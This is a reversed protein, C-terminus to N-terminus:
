RAPGALRGNSDVRLAALDALISYLDGLDLPNLDFVVRQGNVTFIDDIASADPGSANSFVSGKPQGKVFNMSGKAALIGFNNADVSFQTGLATSGISGGSVIASHSDVIGKILLSGPIGGLATIHGGILGRNFEMGGLIQGLVVVNGTLPGEIFLGGAPKALLQGASSFLTGLNGQVDIAGTIGASTTTVRSILNGRSVLKGALGRARVETSTVVPTKGSTDVYLSGFDASVTSAIMTIPDIRIGTTQVVGMIGGGIRLSGFISPATLNFLAQSKLLSVDGLPGFSTISFTSSVAAKTQISGGDGWLDISQLVAKSPQRYKDLPRVYRVMAIVSGRAANSPTMVNAKLSSNPSTVGQVSLVVGKSEFKGGKKDTSVFLQVKQSTATGFPVRYTDNGEVITTGAMLMSKADNGSAEAGTEIRGYWTRHSGFAVAQISKVQIVENPLFDRIGIGALADQPLRIGAPYRFGPFFDAAPLTVATLVDGEVAINHVGAIGTADLRALNFKAVGDHAVLSLDFPIPSKTVPNAIRGTFQPNALTGSAGSMTGEYFYQLNVYHEGATASSDPLPFLVTPSALEVRREVGDETVRLAVPGFGGFVGITGIHGARVWGPMGGAVQMAALNGEVTLVGAFNQGVSLTDPGVVFSDMSGANIVATPTVTGNLVTLRHLLGSVNITGALDGPISLEDINGLNLDLSNFANVVGTSTLSGGMTLLDMIGTETVSGSISGFVILSSLTREVTVTGALDGGMILDDLSGANIVGNPTLSGGITLVDVLGTETVSGSFNGGVNLNSLEQQVHVTGALDQAITQSDINGANIVGTSTLSGGITLVNVIGTETVSGSLSGGVSLNSLAQEVTVSGALDGGIILNDIIVAIIQGNPGLSGGIVIEHTHGSATDNLVGNFNGNTRAEIHEFSTFDLVGNFDSQALLLATDNNSTGGDASVHTLPDIDLVTLTNGVASGAITSGGSGFRIDLRILGSFTIGSAGMQMGKFTTPTLVGDKRIASGSDDINLTNSGNGVLTLAGQILDLVSGSAPALSGVNFTNPASGAGSHVMTPTSALVSEISFTDAGTGLHINLADMGHYELSVGMGLGTLLTSTLIGTNSGADGSDDVNLTDAGSSQGNVVLKGAIGNVNGNTGPALSGVNVINAASGAGTNITTFASTSRVDITDNGSGMSINLTELTDYLIGNGMGLGTLQANTLLNASPTSDGSDDVTVTDAGAGGSITLLGFIANVNGGTLPALSGINFVDAGGAAHITTPGAITERIDFTDSGQGLDINLAGIGYYNIGAVRTAITATGLGTGKLLSATNVATIRSSRYEGQFTIIFVNGVKTVAVNNTYPKSTDNRPNLPDLVSGNPNLIPDLATRVDAATANYPIAVTTQTLATGGPVPVDLTLTFSGGTADMTLTQVNSDNPASTGNRVTSLLVNVSTEPSFKTLGNSKLTEAWVLAPIDQGALVGGWTITYTEYGYGSSAPNKRVHVSTSGYVKPMALEFDAEDLNFGLTVLAYGAQRTVVITKGAVTSTFNPLGTETGFGNARLVYTGGGAQVYVTQEEAVSTMGLGTLTTGTLTSNTNGTGASDNLNLTDGDNEGVITLLAGIENLLQNNSSVNIVDTGTGLEITTHGTLTRVNITDTGAGAKISTTGAHTSEITLTDNGSGLTLNFQEMNHYTIGGLFPRGAIVTDPGMGLGSLHDETLTGTDNSPSESNFVNLVDVQVDENVKINANLPAFFYRDGASPKLQVGNVTPWDTTFIVRNGSVGATEMVVGKAVGDLITFTYPNDAIRPEFGPNNPGDKNVYTAATDELYAQGAVTGASTVSGDPVRLNTEGPLMFPNNLFRDETIQIGGDIILPGRINNVRETVAAFVLVNSGEVVQDNLAKVEVTQPTFWNAPTFRVQPTIVAEGRSVSATATFSRGDKRTISLVPSPTGSVSVTYINSDIAARLAAAVTTLTDTSISTYVLPAGGDLVLRWTQGLAAVGSLMISADSWKYPSVLTGNVTATAGGGSPPIAAFEAYFRQIPAATSITLVSGSTGATAGYTNGADIVGQIKLALAVAVRHLNDTVSAGLIVDTGITVEFSRGNLIVSWKEGAAPVGMLEIKALSTAVMVQVARNEGFNASPDLSVAANYTPTVQPVVDVIVDANPQSTLVLEYSDSVPSPNIAERIQFISTADVAQSWPANITFLRFEPNYGTITATQGVGAGQIIVIQKGNLELAALNTEHRQLSINLQYKEGPQLGIQQSPIGYYNAGYIHRYTGVSIRYTGPTDFKYRLFPDTISYSGADFLVKFDLFYAATALVKGTADQLRLMPADLYYFGFYPDQGFQYNGGDIDFLGTVGGTGFEGVFTITKGPGTVGSVKNEIRVVNFGLVNLLTAMYKAGTDANIKDVLGQAVLRPTRWVTNEPTGVPPDTPVIYEYRKGNITVTWVDSPTIKTPRIVYDVASYHTDLDVVAPVGVAYDSVSTDIGRLHTVGTFKVEAGDARSITLTNGNHAVILGSSVANYLQTAVYSLQGTGGIGDVTYAIANETGPVGDINIPTALGISFDDGNSVYADSGTLTVTQTWAAPLTGGISATAAVAAPAATLTEVRVGAADNYTLVGSFNSTAKGAPTILDDFGKAIDNRDIVGNGTSDEVVYTLEEATTGDPHVLLLYWSEGASPTGSFQINAVSWHSATGTFTAPIPAVVSHSATFPAGTSSSITLTDSGNNYSISYASGPFLDEFYHGLEDRSSVVNSGNQSSGVIATLTSSGLTLTWIEGNTANGSLVIKLTAWTSTSFTSIVSPANETGPIFSVAYNALNLNVITLVAGDYTVTFGSGVFQEEFSTGLDDLTTIVTTNDNLTDTGIKASKSIGDIDLTWTEGDAPVLGSFNISRSTVARTSAGPNTLNTTMSGNANAANVSPFAVAKIGTTSDIVIAEPDSSDVHASPDIGPSSNIANKLGIAVDELDVDSDGDENQAQYSYTTTTGLRNTVQISWTDGAIVTGTLKVKVSSYLSVTGSTSQGPNPTTESVEVGVSFRGGGNKVITLVNTASHSFTYGAPAAFHLAIDDPTTDGLATTYQKTTVAGASDTLTLTWVQDHYVTGGLTIDAQLWLISEVAQPASEVNQVADQVPTGKIVVTANSSAGTQTTIALQVTFGPIGTKTITLTNSSSSYAVTFAAPINPTTDTRVTTALADGLTDISTSTATYLYDVGDLNLKWQEGVATTGGLVIQASSFQVDSGTQDHARLTNTVQGAIQVSQQLGEYSFGSPLAISLKAGTSTRTYASPLPNGSQDGSILHAIVDALTDTVSAHYVYDVGDLKLTWISDAQDGNLVFGAKEYFTRLAGTLATGSFDTVETVDPQIMDPTITFQYIDWSGDGEGLVKAYPTLSNINGGLAQDGITSDFFTYWNSSGTPDQTTVPDIVQGTNNQQEDERIPTPTFQFGDVQHGAISVQLLYDAGKPVGSLVGSQWYSYIGLWNDVSVVYTGAKTINYELYDDLWTTSGSGGVLPDSYGYPGHEERLLLGKDDYLRLKSGWFVAETVEYGKDIDFIARVTKNTAADIMSQDITFKYYDIKNDGTGIVTLHPLTDAQTINSDVNRSWKGFDLNQATAPSDHLDTENMTAVGFNGNFTSGGTYGTVQGNGIVAQSSPETINTGSGTQTVLVGPANADNDIIRVDVDAISISDGNAGALYTANPQGNPDISNIRLGWFTTGSPAAVSFVLKQYLTASATGAVTIQSPAPISYTLAFPRNVEYGSTFGTGALHRIVVTAGNSTADYVGGAKIAAAIKATFAVKPNGAAVDSVTVTVAYSSITGGANLKVTWIDGVRIPIARLDLQNFTQAGVTVAANITFTRGDIRRVLSLRSGDVLALYSGDIVNDQNADKNIENALRIALAMRPDVANAETSSTTVSFISNAGDNLVLNWVDGAVVPSGLLSFSQLVGQTGNRRVGTLVIANGSVVGTAPIWQQLRDVSSEVNTLVTGSLVQLSAGPDSTFAVRYANRATDYTVLVGSFATATRLRAQLLSAQTTTDGSIDGPVLQVQAVVGDIFYSASFLTGDKRVIVLINGDAKALYHGDVIGDHPNADLNIEDALKAALTTRTDSVGATVTYSPVVVDIGNDITVTWQQGTSVADTLQLLSAVGTIDSVNSIHLVRSAGSNTVTVRYNQRIKDALRQAVTDLSDTVNNSVGVAYEYVTGDLVLTWIQQAIPTGTLTVDATIWAKQSAAGDITINADSGADASFVRGSSITVVNGTTSASIPITKGAGASALLADVVSRMLGRSVDSASVNLFDSIPSTITQTIRAYHIGETLTDAVAYVTIAVGTQWNGANFTVVTMASATADTPQKVLAQLVGNEDPQVRVEVTVTKGAAPAKTLKLIYQDGSTTVVGPGIGTREFVLTNADINSASNVQEVVVQAADNDIVRVAISAVKIKDYAGGDGADSGQRVTHQITFNRVGEALSDEPALIFVRQAISWNTRTFLLTKVPKRKAPDSDDYLEIGKGGAIEDSEKVKGASVAVWIDEEPPRTLAIFYSLMTLGGEIMTMEPEVPTIVIGPADNDAVLTSIDPAVVGPYGASQLDIFHDILGSHSGQGASAVVTVPLGNSGTVNFIDSGRGGVVELVTNADTSVIYFTDNGELGDITIKEIGDFRTPLGAGYIADNTVLFDDGFETGLVNITDFGDGGDINVPENVVYEIYDAGQGGNINTFPRKPDNPDTRVFSRQRFTDDDAEGFLFLEANNHYITFTDKGDGGYLTTPFSIGTSLFGSGLTVPITAFYDESDLGNFPNSHDRPSLFVQGIQFTDNGADGFVTMPMSNDDFVFTDDGERGYVFMGGGLLSDDYDIREVGGNAVISMLAHPRSLFFDPGDTGYVNLQNIGDDATDSISIRASRLGALGIDYRDSDGGGRLYLREGIGRDNTQLGNRDYNVRLIDDGTGASLTTVGFTQDVNITDSGGGTDISSPGAITNAVYLADKGAGLFMSFEEFGTYTVGADVMGFGIVSGSNVTGARDATDGSDDFILRDSGLGARLELRGQINSTQGAIGGVNYVGGGNRGTVITETGANTSPIALLISGTGLWLNLHDLNQYAIDGLSLGSLRLATLTGTNASGDGGDDLNLVDNNGTGANVAIGGKIENLSGIDNGFVTTDSGVNITDDGAGTNITTIATAPATLNGGNGLLPAVNKVSPTTFSIRWPSAVTGLGTVDVIFGGLAELASKISSAGTAAANWAIPATVRGDFTLAFTGGTVSPDRYVTQVETSSYTGPIETAVVVNLLNVTMPPINTSVPGAFEVRWPSAPTGLGTVNVQFSGLAELASKIQAATANFALPATTRGSLDITFTGTTTTYITQVENAAPRGDLLTGVRAKGSADNVKLAVVNQAGPAIFTIKWPDDIRGSGIVDVIDINDLLELASKIEAAAANFLIAGTTRTGFTLTFTGSTATTYLSQVENAAAGGETVTAVSSLASTILDTDDAVLQPVDKVGSNLFTILWPSADTGAGTVSVVIGNGLNEIAAKIAIAVTAPSAPNYSIPATTQGAYTLTFTGGRGTAVVKQVENKAVNGEYKTSVVAEAPSLFDAAGNGTMEAVNGAPDLFTVRWPNDTTGRGTVEVTQINNLLELASKIQAATANYNLLGTTQGNFTLTFHGTTADAYIAQVDSNAPRGLVTVTGTGGTLSTSSITMPGIVLSGRDTVTVIWPSAATGVGTVAVKLGGGVGELAAKVQAATANFAIAGTQPAGPLTLRFTGGTATTSIAQVDSNATRGENETVVTVRGAMVLTNSATDMFMQPVDQLGPTLFTVRWPDASRGSGAVDVTIGGLLVIATKVQAATANYAIPTTTQIPGGVTKQVKLAFSGGVVAARGDFLTAVTVDGGTLSSVATM